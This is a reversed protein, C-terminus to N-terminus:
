LIIIRNCGHTFREKRLKEERGRGGGREEEEKMIIKREKRLEGASYLKGSGRGLSSFSM